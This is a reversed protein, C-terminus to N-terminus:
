LTTPYSAARELRATVKAFRLRDVSIGDRTRAWAERTSSEENTRGRLSTAESSRGEKM